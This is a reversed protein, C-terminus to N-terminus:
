PLPAPPARRPPTYPLANHPLNGPARDAQVPGAGPGADISFTIGREHAPLRADEVARAVLEGFDLPARQPAQELYELRGFDLVAPPAAGCPGSARWWRRRPLRGSSTIM